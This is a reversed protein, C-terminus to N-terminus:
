YTSRYNKMVNHGNGHQKTSARKEMTGVLVLFQVMMDKTLMDSLPGEGKICAVLKGEGM